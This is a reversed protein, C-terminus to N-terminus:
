VNPRDITGAKFSAALRQNVEARFEPDQSYLPDAIARQFESEGSYPRVASPAEARRGQVMGAEPSPMAAARAQLGQLALQRTGPDPSAIAANFAAKEAESYNQAAWGILGRYAEEGGVQAYTEQLTLQLQAQQGQIYADVAGPPLKFQEQIAARSAESLDGTRMVEETYVAFPDEAEGPAPPDPIQGVPGLDTAPTEVPPPAEMPPAPTEAGSLRRELEGYAEAMQAADKFKEPLWDPRSPDEGGFSETPPTPQLDGTEAM